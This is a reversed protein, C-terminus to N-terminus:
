ELRVSCKEELIKKGILRVTNVEGLYQPNQRFLVFADEKRYCSLEAPQTKKSESQIRRFAELHRGFYNSLLYKLYVISM